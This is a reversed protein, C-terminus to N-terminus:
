RRPIWRRKAAVQSAAGLATRWAAINRSARTPQTKKLDLSKVIAVESKLVMNVGVNPTTTAWGTNAARARPVAAHHDITPGFAKSIRWEKVNRCRATVVAIRATLRARIM